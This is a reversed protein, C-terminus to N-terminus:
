AHRRGGVSPEERRALVRRRDIRRVLEHPRRRIGLVLPDLDADRDDAAALGPERARDAEKLQELVVGLQRLLEALDGDRHDLLALDGPRVLQGPGHHVRERDALEERLVVGPRV